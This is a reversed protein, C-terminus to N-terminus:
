TMDSKEFRLTKLLECEDFGNNYLIVPTHPFWSPDINNHSRTKDEYVKIKEYLLDRLQLKFFNVITKWDEKNTQKQNDKENRCIARVKPM